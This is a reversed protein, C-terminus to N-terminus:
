EPERLPRAPDLRVKFLSCRRNRPFTSFRSGKRSSTLQRNSDIVPGLASTLSRPPRRLLLDRQARFPGQGDIGNAAVSLGLRMLSERLVESNVIDNPILATPHPVISSTGRKLDITLRQDDIAVVEGASKKTRPDHVARARDLTHDQPPFSYRHILSKKIQGVVGAYTLGGLATNEEQLESDSLECLRFYEWWSSKEERRHWEMMQALLWRGYHDDNWQKQDLPLANLLEAMIKKARDLQGALNEGPEGSKPALGRYAQGRAREVDRRREELWDRLRM